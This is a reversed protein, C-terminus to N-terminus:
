VDLAHNRTSIVFRVGRYLLVLYLRLTELLGSPLCYRLSDGWMMVAVGYKLDPAVIVYGCHLSFNIPLIITPIREFDATSEMLVAYPKVKYVFGRNERITCKYEEM